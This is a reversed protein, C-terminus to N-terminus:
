ERPSRLGQWVVGPHDHYQGEEAQIATITAPLAVGCRAQWQLALESAEAESEALVGWAIEYGTWSSEGSLCGPSDKWTADLPQDLKCVFFGIEEVKPAAKRTADFLSDTALGTELLRKVLADRLPDDEPLDTAADWLKDFLNILGNKTLSTVESLKIALVVKLHTRFDEERKLASCACARIINVQLQSAETRREEEDIAALAEEGRGLALLALARYYNTWSQGPALTEYHYAYTLLAEHRGLFQALVLAEWALEASESGARLALDLVALADQARDSDRYIEALWHAAWANGRDFRLVRALCREAENLRGNTYHHIAARSFNGMHEPDLDLSSKFLADIRKPDIAVAVLSGDATRRRDGLTALLSLITANRPFPAAVAEAWAWLRPGHSPDVTLFRALHLLKAVDGPDTATKPDIALVSELLTDSAENDSDEAADMKSMLEAITQGLPSVAPESDEIPEPEDAPTDVAPEITTTASLILPGSPATPTVPTSPDLLRALRRLTLWDRADRAKSELPRALAEARRDDGMMRYAAILRLRVEAWYKFCHRANLRADWDTLLQIAAAHDGALGLRLAERQDLLLRYRPFEEAPPIAEDAEQKEAPEPEGKLLRITELHNATLLLARRPSHYTSILELGRRCAQEAAEVQGAILLITTEDQTGAWRRDFGPRANGTATIQRAHHLAMELDDAANFVEVAYGRFCNICELKGTRRCVEIGEAIADHIGESNYGHTMATSEGLNDYACSSVQSVLSEYDAMDLDPQIQRARDESELVAILEIAAERGQEPDLVDNATNTLTHLAHVYPRLRRAGRATRKLEAAVRCATQFYCRDFADSLRKDLDKIATSPDDHLDDDSM